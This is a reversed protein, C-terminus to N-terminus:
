VSGLFIMRNRSVTRFSCQLNMCKSHCLISFTHMNRCCTDIHHQFYPLKCKMAEAFPSIYGKHPNIPCKGNVRSRSPNQSYSWSCNQTLLGWQGRPLLSKPTRNRCPGHRATPQRPLAQLSDATSLFMSCLSRVRTHSGERRAAATTKIFLGDKYIVNIPM